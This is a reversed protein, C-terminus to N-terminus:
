LAIFVSGFRFGSRFRFVKYTNEYKRLKAASESFVIEPMKTNESNKTVIPM